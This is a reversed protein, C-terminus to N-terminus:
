LSVEISPLCFACITYVNSGVSLEIEVQKTMYSKSSNIGKITLSVSDKVVKLNLDKALSEEIYNAQCGTDKLVRICTGEISTSFTPLITNGEVECNLVETLAAVNSSSSGSVNGNVSESSKDKDASNSAKGKEKKKESKPHKEKFVTLM